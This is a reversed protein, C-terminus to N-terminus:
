VLSDDYDSGSIAVIYPSSSSDVSKLNQHYLAKIRKCSEFGNMINMNLDMLILDYTEELCL